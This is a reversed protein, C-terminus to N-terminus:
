HGARCLKLILYMEGSHKAEDHLGHIIRDSITATGWVPDATEALREDPATALLELLRRLQGSLLKKLEDRSPWDVTQSVPRCDMGFKEAWRVPLEERRTLLKVCLVDQLWLAHGAHWLIHNSTGPPSYTLWTPQAANLIQLTDHRVQSALEQLTASVSM